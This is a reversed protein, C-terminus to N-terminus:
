QPSAGLKAAAERVDAFPVLRDAKYDDLSAAVMPYLRAVEEITRIEISAPDKMDDVKEAGGLHSGYRDGVWLAFGDADIRLMLRDVMSDRGDAYFVVRGMPDAQWAPAWPKGRGRDFATRNRALMAHLRGVLRAIYRRLEEDTGDSCGALERAWSTWRGAYHAWAGIVDDAVRVGDLAWGSNGMSIWPTYGPPSPPDSPAPRQDFAGRQRALTLLRAAMELGGEGELKHEGTTPDVPFVELDLAPEANLLSTLVAHLANLDSSHQQGFALRQLDAQTQEVEADSPRRAAHGMAYRLDAHHDRATESDQLARFFERKRSREADDVTTSGLAEMHRQLGDLLVNTRDEPAAALIDRDVQDLHAHRDWQALSWGHHWAFACYAAVDRPDGKEVHQRVRRRLRDAQEPSTWLADEQMADLKELLAQAFGAVLASLPGDPKDILALRLRMATEPKPLGPLGLQREAPEPLPEGARKLYARRGGPGPYITRELAPPLHDFPNLNTGSWDRVRFAEIEAVDADSWLAAKPALEAAEPGGLGMDACLALVLEVRRRIPAVLLALQGAEVQGSIRAQLTAPMASAYEDGEARGIKRAWAHWGKLQGRSAEIVRADTRIAAIADHIVEATPNALSATGDLLGELSALLPARNPPDAQASLEDALRAGLRAVEGLKEELADAATTYLSALDRFGALVPIPREGYERTLYSATNRLREVLTPPTDHTPDTM